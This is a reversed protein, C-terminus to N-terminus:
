SICVICIVRSSDTSEEAPRYTCSTYSNIGQITEVRYVDDGHHVDPYLGMLRRYCPSWIFAMLNNDTYPGGIYVRQGTRIAPGIARYGTYPSTCNTYDIYPSSTALSGPKLCYFQWGWIGFGSPSEDTLVLGGTETKTSTSNAYISIWFRSEAIPCILPEGVRIRTNTDNVIFHYFTIDSQVSITVPSPVESFEM